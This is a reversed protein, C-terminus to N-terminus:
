RRLLAELRAEVAQWESDIVSFYVSDRRFGGQVIMHQRLVGERTAGIRELLGRIDLERPLELAWVAHFEVLTSLASAFAVPQCTSNLGM